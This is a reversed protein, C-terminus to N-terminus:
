VAGKEPFHKEHWKPVKQIEEVLSRPASSVCKLPYRLKEKARKAIQSFKSSWIYFRYDVHLGGKNFLRFGNRESNRSVLVFQIDHFDAVAKKDLIKEFGLPPIKNKVELGYFASNNLAIFDLNNNGDYEKGNFYKTEDRRSVLTFGAKILADEVIAEAHEKGIQSSAQSFNHLVPLYEDNIKDKIDNLRLNERYVWIPYNGRKPYKATRLQDGELDEIAHRTITHYIDHKELAVQVSKRMMFGKEELMKPIMAKAKKKLEQTKTSNALTDRM